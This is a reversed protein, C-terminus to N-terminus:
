DGASSKIASGFRIVNGDPDVHSGERLQYPTDGVPKTTGRIGPQSWEEYLADADSVYLYAGSAGKAPDHDPDAALHLSTSGREAFGYDSGGEYEFTSFGLSKYHDLAKTLDGVPLVPSFSEFRIPDVGGVKKKSRTKASNIARENIETLAVLGVKMARMDTSSIREGLAADINGIADRVAAAAARGRETVKISVRRRDEPNVAREMYGRLVLTDILQSAAQKTVGLADIVGAASGGRNAMGGLVYAGNRPLDDFGARALHSRIAKAYRGRSARLLAPISIDDLLEEHEHPHDHPHEHDHAEPAM